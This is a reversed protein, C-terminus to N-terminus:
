HLNTGSAGLGAGGIHTALCLSKHVSAREETGYAAAEEGRRQGGLRLLRPLYPPNPKDISSARGRVGGDFTREALPEVVEPVDFTAVEQDFGSVGLSRRAAEGSKRGFQNRELNIDDHGASACEPGEGGLLRGPGERITKTATPSGTVVPTTLLRARGPPLTV